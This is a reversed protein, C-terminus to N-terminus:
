PNPGLVERMTRLPGTMREPGDEAGLGGSPGAPLMGRLEAGKNAAGQGRVGRLGTNWAFSPDIGGFIEEEVRALASRAQTPTKIAQRLTGESLGLGRLFQITVETHDENAGSRASGDPGHGLADFLGAAGWKATRTKLAEADWVDADGRWFARLGDGSFGLERADALSKAKGGGQAM